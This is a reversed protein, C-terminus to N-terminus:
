KRSMQRRLLTDLGAKSKEYEEESVKGNLRDTELQFLEEKLVDLMDGPPASASQTQAQAKKSNVGKPNRAASKGRTTKRWVVLAVGIMVGVIAGAIYWVASGQSGASESGTSVSFKVPQNAFLNKAFFVSFDGEDSDQAFSTSVGTFKMDKPLLVGLESLPTEPTLSFEYKGNFPVKYFVEFQTEGPRIPFDFAYHNRAESPVPSVPLPMGSPGTISAHDFEAGDPLAASFTQNGIRSRPPQSNNKLVYKDSVNLSGVNSQLHFVRADTTINELQTAADYVIVDASGTGPPVSKFYSVSQRQVRVLHPAQEDRLNLSFHGQSDTKTRSVEEMGSALSILVVEEGSSPQNTTGNMVTGTLQAAFAGLSALLCLLFAAIWNRLKL